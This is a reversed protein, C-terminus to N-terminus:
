DTKSPHGQKGKGGPEKGPTGKDEGYKGGKVGPGTDGRPGKENSGAVVPKGKPGKDVPRVDGRPGKDQPGAVGPKGRPGKEQTGSVVPKGGPGKDRPGVVGAPGKDHPGRGGAPHGPPPKHFEQGAWHQRSHERYWGQNHWYRNRGWDSWHNHFDNYHIRHYGPPMNFIYDPPIVVVYSPVLSVQVPVWPDSYSVARFWYGGHFRYWYGGYFYLGANGPVMYVYSPGSPVVVVDPPASFAIPPPVGISVNIGVQAMTPIPVVIILALLMTGFLLKKMASGGKDIVTNYEKLVKV